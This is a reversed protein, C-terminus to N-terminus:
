WVKNVTRIMYVGVVITIVLLAARVDHVGTGRQQVYNLSVNILNIAVLLSLQWMLQRSDRDRRKRWTDIGLAFAFLSLLLFILNLM